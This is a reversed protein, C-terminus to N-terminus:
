INIKVAGRLVASRSRPNNVDETGLLPKNNLLKLTSEYGAKARNSFFRKVIRDELSHFSIIAVRGTPSLLQEVSTLMEQGQNLEQNVAMRLAQFTRTAPHKKGRRPTTEEIVNALGLTTHFPRNNIIAEVIKKRRPEEGYEKLIKELEFGSLNNVLTEATVEQSQDMRMDLPGDRMFSFGREENDLHPSSVGLDALILDFTKGQEVLKKAASAFDSHMPTAGSDQLDTLTDLANKDRDVLTVREPAGTKSIIVRAHGGYGATLDLYSEGPQPDLLALTQELLVPIHENSTQNLQTNLIM